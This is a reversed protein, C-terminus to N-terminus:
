PCVRIIGWKGNVLWRADRATVQKAQEKTIDVVIESKLTRLVASSTPFYEIIDEMNTGTRWKRDSLLRRYNADGKFCVLNSRSLQRRLDGPLATFHDPGNWFYHDKLILRDQRIYEKLVQGLKSLVPEDCFAQIAKEVDKKMADSVFFPAKKCHLVVRRKEGSRLIAAALLLDCVLETGSNDLVFDVQNGAIMKKQLKESHDILLNEQRSALLNGRSREVIDTNSLDIQNGWLSFHILACLIEEEAKTKRGKENIIGMVERATQIGGEPNLLEEDKNQQFPDSLYMPTEPEYYGTACLLKFYFMAEAFYWPVDLWSHEEYETFVRRWSEIEQQNFIRSDFKWRELPNTIQKNEIEDKLIQLRARAKQPFSSQAILTQLIGPIRETITRWAFSGPDAPSIYPPLIDTQL